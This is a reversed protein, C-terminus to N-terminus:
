LKNYGIFVNWEHNLNTYKIPFFLLTCLLTHVSKLSSCNICTVSNDMKISLFLVLVASVHDTLTKSVNIMETMDSRGLAASLDGASLIGDETEEKSPQQLTEASSQQSLQQKISETNDVADM